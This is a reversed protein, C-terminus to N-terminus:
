RYVHVLVWHSVDGPAPPAPTKLWPIPAGNELHAVIVGAMADAINALADDEDQGESIVGHLLAASVTFKGLEARLYVQCRYTRSTTSM